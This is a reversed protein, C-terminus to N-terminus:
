APAHDHDGVIPAEPAVEGAGAKLTAPLNTVLATLSTVAARLESVERRLEENAHEEPTGM